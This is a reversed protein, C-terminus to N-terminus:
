YKGSPEEEDEAGMEAALDEVNEPEGEEMEDALKKLDDLTFEM